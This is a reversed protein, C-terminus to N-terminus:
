FLKCQTVAVGLRAGVGGQNVPHALKRHVYAFQIDGKDVADIRAAFSIGDEGLRHTLVAQLLDRRHNGGFAGAQRRLFRLFKSDPGDFEFLFAAPEGGDTRRVSPFLPHGFTGSGENAELILTAILSRSRSSSRASSSSKAWGSARPPREGRSSRIMAPNSSIWRKTACYPRAGWCPSSLSM